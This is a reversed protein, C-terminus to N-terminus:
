TLDRAIAEIDALGGVLEDREGELADVREEADRLESELAAIQRELDEIDM